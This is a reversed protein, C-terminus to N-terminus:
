FIGLRSFVPIKVVDLLLGFVIAAAFEGAVVFVPLPAMAFGGIALTSIIFVDAISSMILWKTPRLGWLHRRGRVVYITAQSGYVISVVSLTRIADM